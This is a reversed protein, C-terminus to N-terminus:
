AAVSVRGEYRELQAALTRNQEMLSQVTKDRADVERRLVENDSHLSVSRRMWFNKQSRSKDAKKRGMQSATLARSKYIRKVM